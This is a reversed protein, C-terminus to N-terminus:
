EGSPRVSADPWPSPAMRIQFAQAQDPPLPLTSDPRASSGGRTAPAILGVTAGREALMEALAAGIGSSAGTVLIRSGDIQM